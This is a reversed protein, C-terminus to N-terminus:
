HIHNYMDFPMMEKIGKICIITLKPASSSKNSKNLKSKNPNAWDLDTNSQGNSSTTM